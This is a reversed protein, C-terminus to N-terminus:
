QVSFSQTIFIKIDFDFSASQNELTSRIGYEPDASWMYMLINNFASLLTLFLAFM